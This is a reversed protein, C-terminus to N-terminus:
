LKKTKATTDLMGAATSWSKTEKGQGLPIGKALSLKLISQSAGSDVLARLLKTKMQNKKNGSPTKIQIFL